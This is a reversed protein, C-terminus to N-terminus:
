CSHTDGWWRSWMRHTTDAEDPHPTNGHQLRGFLSRSQAPRVPCASRKVGDRTVVAAWSLIITSQGVPKVNCVTALLIQMCCAHKCYHGKVERAKAASGLVFRHVSDVCCWVMTQQPMVLSCNARQGRTFDPQGHAILLQGHTLVSKVWPSGTCLHSGM